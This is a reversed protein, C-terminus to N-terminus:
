LCILNTLRSLFNMSILTLIDMVITLQKVRQTRCLNNLSIIDLRSVETEQQFIYPRIYDNFLGRFHPLTNLKHRIARQASLFQHRTYLHSIVDGKNDLTVSYLPHHHSQPL